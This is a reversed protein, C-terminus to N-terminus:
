QATFGGDVLHYSGTIFSARDSLLFCVMEAVEEPKGLRGIPHSGILPGLAAKDIVQLLPTDIYGPGVSNIRIGKASYAIAASKTLGVVGHKAAVYAPSLASGVSGLVSAINVIAGGGANLLAPIEHKMAYFVANLNVDIVRHWSEFSQEALPVRKGSIGANNVALHLGGFQKVTFAVMAEVAAFDALDVTYAVAQAGSAKIENAIRAAGTADIDAVVIHAGSAALLRAVCAGIGSAGGTVLGVKGTFETLRPNSM